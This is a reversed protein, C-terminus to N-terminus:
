KQPLRLRNECEQILVSLVAVHKESNVPTHKALTGFQVCNNAMVKTLEQATVPMSCRSSLPHVAHLEKHLHM